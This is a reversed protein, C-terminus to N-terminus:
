RFEPKFMIKIADDKGSTLREFSEQAKELPVVADIYKKSM